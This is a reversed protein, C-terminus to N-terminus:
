LAITILLLLFSPLFRANMTVFDYKLVNCHHHSVYCLLKEPQKPCQLSIENKRQSAMCWLDIQFFCSAQPLYHIECSCPVVVDLKIIVNEFSFYNM